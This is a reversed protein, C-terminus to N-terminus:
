LMFLNTYPALGLLVPTGLSVLFVNESNPDGAHVVRETQPWSSYDILTSAHPWYEAHDIVSNIIEPPLQLARELMARVFIVEMATPQYPNATRDIVDQEKPASDDASPPNVMNLALTKFISSLFEM